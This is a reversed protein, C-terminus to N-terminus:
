LGRLGEAGLIRYYLRADELKTIGVKVPPATHLLAYDNWIVLDGERHLHDYRFQPQLRHAELEDLFLKTEEKTM